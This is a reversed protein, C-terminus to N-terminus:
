RDVETSFGDKKVCIDARLLHEEKGTHPNQSANQDPQCCSSFQVFLEFPSVEFPPGRLYCGNLVITGAVLNM